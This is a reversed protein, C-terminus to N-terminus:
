RRLLQPHGAAADSATFEVEQLRKHGSYVKMHGDVYLYASGVLGGSLWRRALAV